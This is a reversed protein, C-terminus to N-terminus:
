STTLTVIYKGSKSYIHTITQETSTTEDGFNWTRSTSNSTDSFTYTFKSSKTTTIIDTADTVLMTKSTTSSGYTNTATLTITYTGNTTYKVPGPNQLTSSSNGLIDIGGSYTWIWSTPSGTSGDSLTTTIPAKGKSITMTISAIPPTTVPLEGVGYTIKPWYRDEGTSHDISHGGTVVTIGQHRIADTYGYFSPVQYVAQMWTYHIYYPGSVLKGSRWSEYTNGWADPIGYDSSITM